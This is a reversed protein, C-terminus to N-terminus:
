HAEGNMANTAMPLENAGQCAQNVYEQFVHIREERTGIVGRHPSSMLGKQVAEYIRADEAFVRKGLAKVIPRLLRALAWAIPNRRYGHLTYIMCRYRCTTPSIPFVSFLMRNVDLSSFTIHPHRVHHWYEMTVPQDLRRVLWAQRRNVWDPPIITKFTSFRPDLEHWANSEEPFVGFTKPHILPIHYSELSNELVVKWNCAFDQEWTMAHRFPGGFSPAWRDWLPGLWDRLSPTSDSFCVFVLEGCMELRFQRLCSNERDWPRFARAEPIQGTKGDKNFEWGHYQCRLREANGKHLDTLRSHRHPCVNLFARLEGDFNRILLPTDLVDCTLFDGPKALDHMCALPHWATQFLHRQETRHQSESYYQDPRLIHTLQNQHIFM